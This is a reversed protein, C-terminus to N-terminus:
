PGIQIWWNVWCRAGWFRRFYLLAKILTSIANRHIGTEPIASSWFKSWIGATNLQITDEIRKKGKRTKSTASPLYTVKSNQTKQRMTFLHQKFRHNNNKRNTRNQNQTEATHKAIRSPLMQAKMKESCGDNGVTTDHQARSPNLFGPSRTIRTVLSGWWPM